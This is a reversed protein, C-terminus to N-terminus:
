IGTHTGLTERRLEWFFSILTKEGAESFSVLIERKKKDTDTHM